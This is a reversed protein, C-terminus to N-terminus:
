EQTGCDESENESVDIEGTREKSKKIIYQKVLGVLVAIMLLCWIVSNFM